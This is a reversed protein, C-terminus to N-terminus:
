AAVSDFHVGLYTVGGLSTRCGLDPTPLLRGEIGDLRWRETQAGLWDAGAGELSGAVRLEGRRVDLTGEGRTVLGRIGSARGDPQGNRVDGQVEWEKTSYFFRGELDGAKSRASLPQVTWGDAGGDFRGHGEVALGSWDFTGTFDGRWREGGVGHAVFQGEGP